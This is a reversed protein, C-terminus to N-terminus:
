PPFLWHASQSGHIRQRHIPRVRKEDLLHGTTSMQLLKSSVDSLFIICRDTRCFETGKCLELRLEGLTSHLQNAQRRISDVAMSTPDLVNVLDSPTIQFERDNAVLLPLHCIKIVHDIMLIRRVDVLFSNCVGNSADENDIRFLCNSSDKRIWSRRTAISGLDQANHVGQLSSVFM